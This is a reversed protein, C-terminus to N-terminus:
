GEPWRLIAGEPLSVEMEGVQVTPDDPRFVPVRLLPPSTNRRGWHFAGRVWGIREDVYFELATGVRVRQEALAYRWEGQRRELVLRGSVSPPPKDVAEADRRQGEDRADAEAELRARDRLAQLRRAEMMQRNIEDM